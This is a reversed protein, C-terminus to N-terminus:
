ESRATCRNKEESERFLRYFVYKAAEVRSFLDSSNEKLRTREKEIERTVLQIYKEIAEEQTFDDSTNDIKKRDDLLLRTADILRGVASHNVTNQIVGASTVIGNLVSEFHHHLEGCYIGSNRSDM